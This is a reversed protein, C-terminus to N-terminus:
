HGKGSREVHFPPAPDGGAVDELGRGIGALAPELQGWYGSLCADVVTVRGEDEVFYFNVRESGLRHVGPVVETGGPM